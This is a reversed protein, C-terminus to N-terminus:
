GILCTLLASNLSMLWHYVKLISHVYQKLFEHAENIDESNANVVGLCSKSAADWESKVILVGGKLHLGYNFDSIIACMNNSCEEVAHTIQRAHSFSTVRNVSSM